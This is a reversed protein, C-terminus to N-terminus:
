YLELTHFFKSNNTKSCGLELIVGGVEFEVEVDEKFENTLRVEAELALMAAKNEKPVFHEYHEAADLMETSAQSPGVWSLIVGSSHPKCGRPAM